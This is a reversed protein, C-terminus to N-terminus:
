NVLEESFALERDEVLAPAGEVRIKSGAKVDLNEVTTLIQLEWHLYRPSRPM